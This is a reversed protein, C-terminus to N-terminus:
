GRQELDLEDNGVDLLSSFSEVRVKKNRQVFIRNWKILPIIYERKHNTRWELMTIWKDYVIKLTMISADIIVAWREARYMIWLFDESFM